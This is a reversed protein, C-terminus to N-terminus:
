LCWFYGLIQGLICAPLFKKIDLVLLGALYSIFGLPPFPLAYFLLVTYHGYRSAFREVREMRCNIQSSVISGFVSGAAYAYLSGIVFGAVSLFFAPLSGWFSSNADIVAAKSLLPALAQLATIGLSAAFSWAGSSYLYMVLGRADAVSMFYLVRNIHITVATFRTYVVALIVVSVAVLM